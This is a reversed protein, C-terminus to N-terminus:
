KLDSDNISRRQSGVRLCSEVGGVNNLNKSDQPQYIPEFFIAYAIKKGISDMKKFTCDPAVGQVLVGNQRNLNSFKRNKKQNLRM